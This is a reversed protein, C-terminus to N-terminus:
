VAKRGLVLLAMGPGPAVTEVEEFGLRRLREEVEPVSWPYGGCRV